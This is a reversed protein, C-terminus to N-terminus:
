YNTIELDMNKTSIYRKILSSITDKKISYSVLSQTILQDIKQTIELEINLLFGCDKIKAIQM